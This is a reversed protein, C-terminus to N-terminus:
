FTVVEHVARGPSGGLTCPSALKTEYPDFGARALLPRLPRLHLAELGLVHADVLVRPTGLALEAPPASCPRGDAWGAEIRGDRTDARAWTAARDGCAARGWELRRLPFRWPLVDFVVHDRYGRAVVDRGGQRWSLSGRVDSDPIEVHWSIARGDPMALFPDRLAFPAARPRYELDGSLGETVFRLRGAGESGRADALSGHGSRLPADGRITKGDPLFLEATLRATRVGFFALRGVYVLLVTGDDFLVDLYWKELTVPFRPTRFVFDV